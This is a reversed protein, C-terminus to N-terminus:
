RRFYNDGNKVNLIHHTQSIRRTLAQYLPFIHPLPMQQFDVGRRRGTLRHRRMLAGCQDCSRADFAVTVCQFGAGIRGKRIDAFNGQDLDFRDFGQRAIVADSQGGCLM